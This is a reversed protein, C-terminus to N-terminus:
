RRQEARQLDGVDDLDLDVRPHGRRDCRCPAFAITSSSWVKEVPLGVSYLQSAIRSRSRIMGQTSPPLTSSRSLGSRALASILTLIPAIDIVNRPVTSTVSRSSSACRATRRTFDLSVPPCPKALASTVNPIASPPPEM